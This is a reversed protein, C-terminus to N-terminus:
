SKAIFHRPEYVAKHSQAIQRPLERQIRGCVYHPFDRTLIAFDHAVPIYIYIYRKAEHEARTMAVCLQGDPM